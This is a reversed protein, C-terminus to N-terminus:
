MGKGGCRNCTYSKPPPQLFEKPVNKDRELARWDADSTKSPRYNDESRNIDEQREHKSSPEKRRDNRDDRRDDREREENRKRKWYPEDRRDDWDLRREREWEREGDDYDGRDRERERAKKLQEDGVFVKRIDAAGPPYRKELSRFPGNEEKWAEVEELLETQRFGRSKLSQTWHM